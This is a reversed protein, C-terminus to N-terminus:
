DVVYGRSKQGISNRTGSLASDVTRYTPEWNMRKIQALSRSALAMTTQSAERAFKPACWVALNSVIANEYGQPLSIVTNIDPFATIQGWVSLILPVPTTPIPWFHLGNLPYNGDAWMQLPITSYVPQYPAKLSIDRWQEDNLIDIPIEVGNLIVSALEIQGPRVPYPTVFTGGVGITYDQQNAVMAFTRRDVTYIMLSENAWSSVMRNLVRLCSKADEATLASGGAIVGIDELADEILDRVTTM